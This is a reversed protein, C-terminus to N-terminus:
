LQRLFVPHGWGRQFARKRISGKNGSSESLVEKLRPRGLSLKHKVKMIEAMAM